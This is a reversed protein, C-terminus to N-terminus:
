DGRSHAEEMVADALTRLQTVLESVEGALALRKPHDKARSYEDRARSLKQIVVWMRTAPSPDAMKLPIDAAVTDIM